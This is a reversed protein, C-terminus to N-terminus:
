NVDTYRGKGNGSTTVTQQQKSKGIKEYQTLDTVDIFRRCGGERKLFEELRWEYSWYYKSDRLVLCYRDIAGKIEEVTYIENFISNLASEIRPTRKRVKPLDLTNWHNVVEDYKLQKQLDRNTKVESSKNETTEPEEITIVSPIDLLLRGQVPEQKKKENDIRARYDRIRDAETSSEGIFNQIDLMFIDGSDLIDILHFQKFVAIAAKITDQKHGLASALTSISYPITNTIKLSGGRKLSKLYMKMMIAIYEYGNELGEIIKIEERDFFNDKLKLYYYKKNDV